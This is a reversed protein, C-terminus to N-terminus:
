CGGGVRLEGRCDIEVVQKGAVLSGKGLVRM